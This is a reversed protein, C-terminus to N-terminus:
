KSSTWGGNKIFDALLDRAFIDSAYSDVVTLRNYAYSSTYSDCIVYYTATANISNKVSNGYEGFYIFYDSNDTNIFKKLLDSGKISCLVIENDFPLLSQVDSYKIEGAKLNYPSRTKIFGGGLVIDYQESWKEYGAEFYLKAVLAEIEEDDRYKDNRGLIENAQSIQDEYKKLLEDILPDDSYATYISDSVIKAENIASSNTVSNIKIEVHSIGHNEGGNQLHYVGESDILVYSKHTHGEFVLDVYGDSLAVDYYGKLQSDSANYNYNKNSEFGDHISYVIYDVGDARLRAAEAKVLDTLQNGTKFYIDATKDSSISSYCDGIAGIIGIQIGDREIVVSPACYDVRQNTARDYINIALMPFEAAAANAEIYEEGWDFEHNGLTMSVFDLENMWDTMILGKTLNSESSGQWMDGSSFLVFNDDQERMKKLYSTLEDVGENTSTDDFKGHLDNLVYFDIYVYLSISCVDCEGDDNSDTHSECSAESNTLSEEECNSETDITHASDTNADPVSLHDCGVFIVSLLILFAIIKINTKM